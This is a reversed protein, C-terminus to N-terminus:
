LGGRWYSALGTWTPDAGPIQYRGIRNNAMGGIYLYGRHERMSTIMPYNEGGWDSVSDVIRGGEDFKLIGGTNINPFLWEEQPLQRTMRRRMGPRRLALDFSPTRMGVLALWYNGDSARNINDPYGPLNNIVSELSGEKPGAFWYRHVACAWTEAFFFSQADRAMCIGNTYRFGSLVTNTARRSPDYCLVRGTARSEVGDIAWEHTDYRTTSDTFFVRGDGAVDCDNAERLRSDDVVSWRTRRTEATEKLVERERTIAYLGMGGVCVHLTGERDFALGYPYGGLHAFVELRKYDPPFFRVVDGHRTGCYLNDDDDLIVDEPGEIAGLGIVEAARLKDNLACPTDTGPNAIPASDMRYYAPAVYIISRLKHRNKAWRVDSAVAVLLITGLLVQGAGSQFGLQILSNTALLVIAAGMLAKAVSGRGGGLSVGGVVCATLVSIELGAGTDTGVGNLRTAFLFGALGALAGSLVYTQAATRRVSIGANHAARRSGGVALIHWGLRSRTLLIHCVIGLVVAVIFSFPINFFGSTGIFDWAYSNQVDATQMDGAFKMLLLDFVSRTIILTVLTTLFARLQLFGILVGNLAGVVTGTVLAALGASYPSGHMVDVIWLAAFAALGFSGSVSLDIGGGLMVITMGLAVLGFEGLQRAADSLQQIGFLNPIWIRFVLGTSLLLVFPIANDAWRKSLLEGILHGPVLNYRWRTIVEYMATRPSRRRTIVFAM